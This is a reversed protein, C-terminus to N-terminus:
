TWRLSPPQILRNQLVQDLVELFSRTTGGERRGMWDSPLLQDKCFEIYMGRVDLHAVQNALLTKLHLHVRQSFRDLLCVEVKHIIDKLDGSPKNPRTYEWIQLFGLGECFTLSNTSHNYIDGADLILLIKQLVYQLIETHRIAQVALLAESILKYQHKAAEIDRKCPTSSTTFCWPEHARVFQPDM